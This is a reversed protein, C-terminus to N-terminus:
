APSLFLIASGGVAVLAGLVARPSVREKHAIIVFPLIFIPTLSCLTQAIGLPARDSAVLSMWVGLFPGVVAGCLTFGLGARRSGLRIPMVDNARRRRARLQHVVIIPLVGLGAFVMRVLTAAQPDLRQDESLWGHGM